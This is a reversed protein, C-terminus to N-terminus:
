ASEPATASEPEATSETVTAPLKAEIAELKEAMRKLQTVQPDEPLIEVLKKLMELAPPPLVESLQGEQQATLPTGPARALILFASFLPVVRTGLERANTEAFTQLEQFLPASPGQNTVEGIKQAAEQARQM